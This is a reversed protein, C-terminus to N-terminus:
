SVKFDFSIDDDYLNKALLDKVLVRPNNQVIVQSRKTSGGDDEDANLLSFVSCSGRMPAKHSVTQKETDRDSVRICDYSKAKLISQSSYPSSREGYDNFSRRKETTHPLYEDNIKIRVDFDDTLGAEDSEPRLRSIYKVKEWKTAM